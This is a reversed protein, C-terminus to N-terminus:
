YAAARALGPSVGQFQPYLGAQPPLGETIPGIPLGGRHPAREGLRNMGNRQRLLGMGERQPHAAAAAALLNALSLGGPLHEPSTALGGPAQERMTPLGGGIPSPNLHPYAVGSGGPGFWHIGPTHPHFQGSPISGHPELMTQPGLAAIREMPSSARLAPPSGILAM